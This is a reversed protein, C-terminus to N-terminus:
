PDSDPMPMPLPRSAKLSDHLARADPDGPEIRVGQQAKELAEATRNQKALWRAEEVWARAHEPDLRQADHLRALGEEIDGIALLIKGLHFHGRSDDPAVEVLKRYAREATDRNGLRRESGGWYRYYDEAIPKARDVALWLLIAAVHAIGVAALPAHGRTLSRFGIALPIVSLVGAVAIADPLRTVLAAVIGLVVAVFIATWGPADAVRRIWRRLNGARSTEALWVWIADPVVLIYLAIMLFAFMGIEFGTALIGLHFLIGLPAAIFWTRRLWITAALTLEVAIVAISTVKFGVTKEVLKRLSGTLQGGLTRGDFWAPDLKSIAAWVYMIALQMLLLRLAWSRVPTAPEADAPRQWPVFSAIVLLLAVLYHHQYADLQSGFYLWAYVAAAVPVAVRTAVGLAALVLMYAIVLQGAGFAVRGVGLGDLMPLQAVNFGGAGYRPAHSIQLLADIALVMFVVFRFVAVKAWPVEFGFWFVPERPVGKTVRAEPLSKAGHHRRHPNQPARPQNQPAHKQKPNQKQAPQTPEPKAASKDSGTKAATEEASAAGSVPDDPAGAEEAATRSGSSGAIAAPRQKPRNSGKRKKAM